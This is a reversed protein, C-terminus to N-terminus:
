LSHGKGYNERKTLNNQIFMADGFSFFRYEKKVAQRYVELMAERGALASVLMLLSSKPLHFNTILADVINLEKGPYLFIKTSAKAAKVFWKGEKQEKASELVRTTTTGVAIIRRKEAIAQNIREATAESIEYAEEHMDHELLCEAKVPRFTGLGVHLTLREIQVGKEELASLLDQTFHLGATPAAASGEKKAYVTQYRNKDKLQEHIYPPLPMKGAKDLVEEFIGEYDFRVIRNGNELVELVKAKLFSHEPTKELFLIETNEKLRRGPKVLCEWHKEDLRKLLLIECAVTAQNHEAKKVGLLRAPLVKTENLVLVDGKKLIHLLDKFHRDECKLASLGQSNCDQTDVLMLRSEDRKLLPSQAILHEPLDYDYDKTYLFNKEVM